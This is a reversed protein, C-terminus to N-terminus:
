LQVIHGLICVTKNHKNTYNHYRKYHIWIIIKNIGENRWIHQPSKLQCKPYNYICSCYFLGFCLRKYIQLINSLTAYNRPMAADVPEKLLWEQLLPCTYGLNPFVIVGIKADITHTCYAVFWLQPTRSDMGGVTDSKPVCVFPKDAQIQFRAFFIKQSQTPGILDCIQQATTVAAFSNGSSQIMKRLSLVYHINVHNLRHVWLGKSFHTGYILFHNRCIHWSMSGMFGM